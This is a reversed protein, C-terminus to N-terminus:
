IEMDDLKLDNEDVLKQLIRHDWVQVEFRLDPIKAYRSYVKGIDDIHFIKGYDPLEPNNGQLERCPIGALLLKRRYSRLSDNVTFTVNKRDKIQDLDFVLYKTDNEQFKQRQEIEREITDPLFGPILYLYVPFRNTLPWHSKEFEDYLMQEVAIRRNMYAARDSASYRGWYWSKSDVISDLVEDRQDDAVMTVTQFLYNENRYFHILYGLTNMYEEGTRRNIHISVRFGIYKIANYCKQGSFFGLVQSTEVMIKGDIWM